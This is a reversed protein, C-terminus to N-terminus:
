HQRYRLQDAIAHLILPVYHPDALGHQGRSVALKAHDRKLALQVAFRVYGQDLSVHFAPAARHQYAHVRMAQGAVHKAAREAVALLEEISREVEGRALALARQKVKGMAG